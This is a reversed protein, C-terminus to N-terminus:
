FGFLLTSINQPYPPINNGKDKRLDDAEIKPLWCRGGPLKKKGTYIFKYNKLLCLWISDSGINIRQVRREQQEKDGSGTIAGRHFLKPTFTLLIYSQKHSGVLWQGRIRTWWHSPNFILVGHVSKIDNEAGLPWGGWDEKPQQEMRMGM